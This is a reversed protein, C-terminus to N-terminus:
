LKIRGSKQKGGASFTVTIAANNKARGDIYAYLQAVSVQASSNGDVKYLVAKNKMGIYAAATAPVVKSVILFGEPTREADSVTFGLLKEANPTLVVPPPTYPATSSQSVNYEPANVTVTANKTETNVTYLLTMSPEFGAVKLVSVPTRGDLFTAEGQAHWYEDLEKLAKEPSTQSLMQVLRACQEQVTSVAAANVESVKQEYAQQKAQADARAQSHNNLLAGLLVGIGVGGGFWGWGNNGYWGDGGYWGGYSHRPPRPGQQGPGSMPGGSPGGQGPGSPGGGPRQGSPGGGPRAGSPGGKGGSIIPPQGGGGPGGQGGGGGSPPMPAAQAAAATCFTLMLIM